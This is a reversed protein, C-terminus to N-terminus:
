KVSVYTLSYMRSLDGIWLLDCVGNEKSDNKLTMILRFM